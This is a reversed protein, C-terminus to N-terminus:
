TLVWGVGRPNLAVRLETFEDEGLTIVGREQLGISTTSTCLFM